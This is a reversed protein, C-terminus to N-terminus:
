HHCSLNESRAGCKTQKTYIKQAAYNLIRNRVLIRKCIFQVNGYLNKERRCLCVKMEKIEEDSPSMELSLVKNESRSRRAEASSWKPCVPITLKSQKRCWPCNICIRKVSKRWCKLTGRFNGACETRGFNNRISKMLLNFVRVLLTCWLVTEFIHTAVRWATV